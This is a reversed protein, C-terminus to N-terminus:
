MMLMKLMLYNYEIVIIIFFYNQKRKCFSNSVIFDFKMVKRILLTFYTLSRLFQIIEDYCLLFELHYKRNSYYQREVFDSV